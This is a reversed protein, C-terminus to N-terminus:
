QAARTRRQQAATGRGPLWGSCARVCPLPRLHCLMVYCLMFRIKHFWTLHGRRGGHETLPGSTCGLFKLRKHMPSLTGGYETDFIRSLQDRITLPICTRTCCNLSFGILQEEYNYFANKDLYESLKLPVTKVTKGRSKQRYRSRSPGRCRSTMLRIRATLGRGHTLRPPQSEM